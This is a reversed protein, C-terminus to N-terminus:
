HRVNERSFCAIGEPSRLRCDLECGDKGTSHDTELTSETLQFGWKSSDCLKMIGFTTGM